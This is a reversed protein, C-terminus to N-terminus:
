FVGDEEDVAAIGRRLVIRGIRLICDALLLLECDFGSEPKILDPLCALGAHPIVFVRSLHRVPFFGRDDSCDSGSVAGIWFL